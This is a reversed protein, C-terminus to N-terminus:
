LNQNYLYYNNFCYHKLAATHCISLFMLGFVKNLIIKINEKQPSSTHHSYPAQELM